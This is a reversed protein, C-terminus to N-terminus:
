QLRVREGEELGDLIQASGGDLIGVKVIREEPAGGGRDVEVYIDDGRFRLATEPV